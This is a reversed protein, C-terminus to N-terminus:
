VVIGHLALTSSRFSTTNLDSPAFVQSRHSSPPRTRHHRSSAESGDTSLDSGNPELEEVADLVDATIQSLSEKFNEITSWM